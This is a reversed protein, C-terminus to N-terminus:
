QYVQIRALSEDYIFLRGGADLAVATAKRFAGPMKPPVSFVARPRVKDAVEFVRV